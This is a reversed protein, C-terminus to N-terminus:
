DTHPSDCYFTFSLQKASALEDSDTELTRDKGNRLEEIRHQNIDFGLTKIKRGFEVALPLGVYGLGIVGIHINDISHM